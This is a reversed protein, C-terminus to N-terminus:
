ITFWVRSLTATCTEIAREWLNVTERGIDTANAMPKSNGYVSTNKWRCLFTCPVGKWSGEATCFVHSLVHLLPQKHPVPLCSCTNSTGSVEDKSFVYRLAESSSISIIILHELIISFQTRLSHHYLFLESYVYMGSGLAQLQFINIICSLDSESGNFSILTRGRVEMTATWLFINLPFPLLLEYTHSCSNKYM